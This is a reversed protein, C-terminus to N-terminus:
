AEKRTYSKARHFGSFERYAAENEARENRRDERRGVDIEAELDSEDIRSFLMTWVTAEAAPVREAIM